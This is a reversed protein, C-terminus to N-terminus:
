PKAAGDPSPAAADPKPAGHQQRMRQMMQQMDTLQYDAPIAFLDDPQAGEKIDRLEMGSGKSDDSKVLFKLQPDIWAHAIEGKSSTAEYKVASRGGVTENGIRKCSWTADDQKTEQALKEWGPCPNNPDLPRFMQSMHGMAKVDMYTKQQPMLVFATDAASDILVTGKGSQQEMRIKTGSVYIKSQPLDPHEASLPVLDASFQQAVAPHAAGALLIAGVALAATTVRSM